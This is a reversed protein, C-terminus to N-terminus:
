LGPLLFTRGLAFPVLAFVKLMIRFRRRLAGPVANFSTRGLSVRDIAGNRFVAWRTSKPMLWGDFSRFDVLIM